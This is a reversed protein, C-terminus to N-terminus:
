GASGQWEGNCSRDRVDMAISRYQHITFESCCAAGHVRTSRLRLRAASSRIWREPRFEYPEDFPKKDLSISWHNGIVTAGKPIHYGMYEDDQVAAHPIGGACVPRWRLVESVTANIYPLMQRHEFSPLTDLGAVEDLEKQAKKLFGANLMAALVFVELAMTATDAGAEYIMGMDFGVEVPAM